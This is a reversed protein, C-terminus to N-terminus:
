AVPGYQNDNPDQKIMSNFLFAIALSLVSSAITMPIAKAKTIAEIEANAEAGTAGGAEMMYSFMDGMMFFMLVCVAVIYICIPLLCMSGAKGADHYRKIWIFIWPIILLFSLLGALITIAPSMGLFSPISLIIALAVLIFAAKMFDSSNIRGSSSLLLNMM